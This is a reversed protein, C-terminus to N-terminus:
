LTPQIIGYGEYKKNGSYRNDKLSIATNKFIEIYEQYSNLQYKKEKRNYALLLASLGVAFPNSMSTGSMIAYKNGPVCGIIEHGPALFDLSDGSCTFDTRKLNRDIAGIAITNDYRAPYMIDINSGSNGAACFVVSGLKNAYDIASKLINSTNTSGLSMTIFDAGHDAAWRISRSITEINGHGQDNLAKIPM